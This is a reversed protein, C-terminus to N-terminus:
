TVLLEFPETIIFDIRDYKVHLCHCSLSYVIVKRAVNIFPMRHKYAPRSLIGQTYRCLFLYVCGLTLGVM